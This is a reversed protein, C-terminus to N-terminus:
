DGLFAGKAPIFSPNNVAAVDWIEARNMGKSKMEELDRTISKFTMNGNLWCWFAGPRVSMPPNKFEADAKMDTQEMKAQQGSCQIWFIAHILLITINIM